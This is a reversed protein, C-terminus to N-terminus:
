SKPPKETAEIKVRQINGENMQIRVEGTTQRKNERDVIAAAWALLEQHSRPSPKM